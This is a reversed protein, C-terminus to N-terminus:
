SGHVAKALSPVTIGDLLGRIVSDQGIGRDSAARSLVLRHRMVPYAVAKVDDPRVYERGFSAAYAQAALGLAIGARPSVGMVIDPTPVRTAAAIDIIYLQVPELVRVQRVEQIMRRVEAIDIGPQVANEPTLRRLGGELVKLEDSRGPPKMTVKMMFRDIQAEPLPFTGRHEIPNQTAICM